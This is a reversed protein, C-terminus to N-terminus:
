RDLLKKIEQESSEPEIRVALQGSPDLLFYYSQGESLSTELGSGDRIPSVRMGNRELRTSFSHLVQRAPRPGRLVEVEDLTCFVQYSGHPHEVRVQALRAHVVGIEPTLVEGLPRFFIRTAAVEWTLLILLLLFKRM